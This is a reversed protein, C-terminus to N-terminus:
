HRRDGGIPAGVVWYLARARRPGHRPIFRNWYDDELDGVLNERHKVPILSVLLDAIQPPDLALPWPKSRSGSCNLTRWPRAVGGTEGAVEVFAAAKGSGFTGEMFLLLAM